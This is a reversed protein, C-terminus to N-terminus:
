NSVTHLPLNKDVFGEMACLHCLFIWFSTGRSIVNLHLPTLPLILQKANASITLITSGLAGWINKIVTRTLLCVNRETHERWTHWMRRQTLGEPEKVWHFSIIIPCKENWKGPQMMTWWLTLLLQIMDANSSFVLPFRIKQKSSIVIFPQDM